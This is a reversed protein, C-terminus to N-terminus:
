ASISTALRRLLQSSTVVRWSSRIVTQQCVVAHGVLLFLAQPLGKCSQIGDKQQVSNTPRLV